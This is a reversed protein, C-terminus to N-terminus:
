DTAGEDATRDGLAARRRQYAYWFTLSALVYVAAAAAVLGALGVTSAVVDPLFVQVLGASGFVLVPLSATIYSVATGRTLQRQGCYPCNSVDPGIPEDCAVCPLRSM